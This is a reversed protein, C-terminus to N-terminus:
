RESGLPAGRNVSRRLGQLEADTEPQNVRQVWNRPRDVSWDSLLTKAKTDGHIYRRLSGWRWTETRKVLKARLVDREVYRCVTLLYDDQQVVFSKFRGQYLYGTGTSRRHAHWRQTYTLTLLHM